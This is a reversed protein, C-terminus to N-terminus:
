INIPNKISGRNNGNTEAFHIRTQPDIQIMWLISDISSEACEKSVRYNQVCKVLAERIELM